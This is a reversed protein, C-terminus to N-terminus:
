EQQRPGCIRLSTNGLVGYLLALSGWAVGESNKRKELCQLTQTHATGIRIGREGAREVQELFCDLFDGAMQAQVESVTAIAADIGKHNLADLLDSSGPGGGGGTSCGNLIVVSPKAFEREVNAAQVSSGKGDDQFYVRGRDHHSLVSLIQPRESRPQAPKTTDTVLPGHIFEFFQDMSESIPIQESAIRLSDQDAPGFRELGYLGLRERATRTAGSRAPGVVVWDDICADGSDDGRVSLPSEIRAYRGLFRYGQGLAADIALLGLPWLIPRLSGQASVRFYVSSELNTRYPEGQVAARLVPEIANRTERGPVLTNFVAAGNQSRSAEDVHGLTGSLNEMASDLGQFTQNTSWSLYEASASGSSGAPATAERPRTFVGQLIGNGLEVLHISALPPAGKRLLDVGAFLSSTVETGSSCAKSACIAFSVEDIPVQADRDWISVALNARTTGSPFTSRTHLRFSLQTLRFDSSGELARKTEVTPDPPSGQVKVLLKDLQTIDVTLSQVRDVQRPLDFFASDHILVVDLELSRQRRKIAKQIAQEMGTSTSQTAIGNAVYKFAALDLRVEYAKNAQLRPSPAAQPADPDYLWANWWLPLSEPALRSADSSASIPQVAVAESAAAAVVVPMPKPDDSKAQFLAGLVEIEVRNNKAREAATKNDAVPQLKGKGETYVRNAEVGKSVLYGKVAEARQVSLKQNELDSGGTDAHGVALVVGSAPGSGLKAALEDLKAKDWPQLRFEAQEFFADASYTIKEAPKVAERPPPVPSIPPPAVPPPAAPPAVLKADPGSSLPQTACATLAVIFTIGWYTARLAKSKTM